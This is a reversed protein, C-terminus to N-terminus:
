ENKSYLDPEGSIRELVTVGRVRDCSAKLVARKCGASRRWCLGKTELRCRKEGLFYEALHVKICM